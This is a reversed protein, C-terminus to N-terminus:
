HPNDDSNILSMQCIYETGDDQLVQHPFNLQSPHHYRTTTKGGFLSPRFTPPIPDSDSLPSFKVLFCFRLLLGSPHACSFDLSVKLVVREFVALPPPHLGEDAATNGQGWSIRQRRLGLLPGKRRLPCFSIYTEECWPAFIHLFIAVVSLVGVTEAAMDLSCNAIQFSWCDPFEM